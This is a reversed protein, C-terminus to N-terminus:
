IHIQSLRHPGQWLQSSHRILQFHSSGFALIEVGSNSMREGPSPREWSQSKYIAHFIDIGVVKRSFIPPLYQRLFLVTMNMTVLMRFM